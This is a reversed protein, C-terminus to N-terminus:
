VFIPRCRRRHRIKYHRYAFGTVGNKCIYCKDDFCSLSVKNFKCSKLKHYINQIIRMIHRMQRDNYLTRNYDEHKIKKIVSKKIGKATKNNQGKEKIYSYMKSPLGAFEVIPVGCAEDKFRGIVKKNTKDYFPSNEPYDSNDIRDRDAWFDQYVNDTEIEYMLSDTNTFLLKARDGYKNKIRNYHFNYMLAKSLDLICMSVYSPKDLTLVEKIKLVAVLDENFIKSNIYSPKAVMKLVNKEDMVLRVDARKRLNEMTKRYMSNNMLKFFDKEFTNKSNARKRTNFDIYRKLWASQNFELARHVKTVRLGLDTYLKLNRYHLVYKEKDGLTPILKSVLGTSVNFKEAIEKCYPSLMDEIVKIKEPALPYDNYLDHLEKPYELDVQLILGRRSHDKYKALDLKDIQEKKLWKFGGTPLYQSM